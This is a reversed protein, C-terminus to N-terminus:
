RTAPTQRIEIAVDGTTRAEDIQAQLDDRWYPVWVVTLGLAAFDCAVATEYPGTRRSWTAQVVKDTVTTGNLAVIHSGPKGPGLWWFHKRLEDLNM